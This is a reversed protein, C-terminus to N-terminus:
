RSGDTTLREVPETGGPVRCFDDDGVYVLFVNM